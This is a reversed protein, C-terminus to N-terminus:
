PCEFESTPKKNGINTCPSDFPLAITAHTVSGRMLLQNVLSEDQVSECKVSSKQWSTDFKIVCFTPPQRSALQEQAQDLYGMVLKRQRAIRMQLQQSAQTEPPLREITDPFTGIGWGNKGTAKLPMSPMDSFSFQAPDFSHEIEKSDKVLGQYSSSSASSETITSNSPTSVPNAKSLEQNTLGRSMDVFSNSQTFSEVPSFWTLRLYLDSHESNVRESHHGTALWSMLGLHM